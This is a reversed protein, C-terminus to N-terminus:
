PPEDGGGAASAGQSVRARIENVADAVVEELGSDDADLHYTGAWIALGDNVRLLRVTIRIRGRAVSVAGDTAFATTPTSASANTIGARPVRVTIATDRALETALVESLDSAIDNAAPGGIARLPSLTISRDAAAGERPRGAIVAMVVAVAILAVSVVAWPRWRSQPVAPAVSTLPAGPAMVASRSVAANPLPPEVPMMAPTEHSEGKRAAQIRRAAKRTEPAPEVGFEELMRAQWEAYVRLASGRDGRRDLLEMM